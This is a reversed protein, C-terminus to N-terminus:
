IGVAGFDQGPSGSPKDDRGSWGPMLFVEGWFGTPGGGLSALFAEELVNRGGGSRPCFDTHPKSVTKHMNAGVDEQVFLNNSHM